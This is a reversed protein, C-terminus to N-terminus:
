SDAPRYARAATLAAIVEDVKDWEIAIGAEPNYGGYRLDYVSVSVGYDRPIVHLEERDDYSDEDEVTVGGQEITAIREPVRDRRM